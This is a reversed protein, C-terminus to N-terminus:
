PTPHRITLGCQFTSRTEDPPIGGTSLAAPGRDSEDVDSRSGMWPERRASGGLGSMRRTPDGRAGISLSAVIAPCVPWSGAGCNEWIHSLPYLDSASPMRCACSNQLLAARLQPSTVPAQSPCSPRAGPTDGSVAAM